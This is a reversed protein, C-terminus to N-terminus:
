GRGDRTGERRWVKGAIRDAPAAPAATTTARVDRAGDMRGRARCSRPFLPVSRALGVDGLSVGEKNVRQNFIVKPLRRDIRERRRPPPFFLFEGIQPSPLTPPRFPRSPPFFAHSIQRCKSIHTQARAVPTMGMAGTCYGGSVAVLESEHKLLSLIARFLTCM